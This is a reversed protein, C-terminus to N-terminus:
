ILSEISDDLSGLFCISLFREVGFPPAVSRPAVPGPIPVTEGHRYLTLHFTLAIFATPEEVFDIFYPCLLSFIRFVWACIGAATPRADRRAM